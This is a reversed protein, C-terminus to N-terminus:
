VSRALMREQFFLLSSNIGSTCLISFHSVNKGEKRDVFKEISGNLLEKLVDRIFFM